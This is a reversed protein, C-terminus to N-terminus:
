VITLIQADADMEAMEGLPLSMTPMSHGCSYNLIIPKDKPLLDKFIQKLTMVADEPECNTYYGMVIGACDEFKGALRLHNIMGDIRYPDEDVDELFLIKGKTNLEFPTGMSAAILSLNGGCLIGRAKGSNMTECPRESPLEGKLSGFMAKELWHKSYGDFNEEILETSPMPAHYTVLECRQNLAMHLATIDSYGAFWKPNERIRDFDLLDLMRQVGYGGRLCFIGNIAPDTFADMIDKAREEDTGGLYGYGSRCTPYLVAELGMAALMNVCQKLKEERVEGAVKMCSAPAVIALRAGKYLPKPTIM